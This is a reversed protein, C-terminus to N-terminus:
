RGSAQQARAREIPIGPRKGDGTVGAACLVTTAIWDAYYDDLAERGFLLRYWMPGFVLDILMEDDAEPIEGRGRARALMEAIIERRASLLDAWLLEAIAEDQLAEIAVARNMLGSAGRQERFTARLLIKLDEALSGTDPQPLQESAFKKLADLILHGKSRYRRYLAQKAIGSRAAVGEMSLGKYGQEEILEFTAKIIADDIGPDRPRGRM